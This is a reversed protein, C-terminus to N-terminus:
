KLLFERANVKIPSEVECIKLDKMFEYLSSSLSDITNGCIGGKYSSIQYFTPLHNIINQPIRGRLTDDDVGLHLEAEVLRIATDAVIMNVAYLADEQAYVLRRVECMAKNWASIAIRCHKEYTNPLM